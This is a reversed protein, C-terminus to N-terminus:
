VQARLRIFPAGKCYNGVRVGTLGGEGFLQQQEAAGNLKGTGDLAALGRPM